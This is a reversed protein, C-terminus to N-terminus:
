FAFILFLQLNQLKVLTKRQHTKMLSFHQIKVESIENDTSFFYKRGKENSADTRSCKKRRTSTTEFMLLGKFCRNNQHPNPASFYTTPPTSATSDEFYKSQPLNFGNSPQQPLVMENSIKEANLKKEAKQNLEEDCNNSFNTNRSQWKKWPPATEVATFLVRSKQNQKSSEEFPRLSLFVRSSFSSPHLKDALLNCSNFLM